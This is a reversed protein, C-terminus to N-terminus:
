RGVFVLHRITMNHRVYSENGFERYLDVQHPCFCGCISEPMNGWSMADPNDKHHCKECVDDEIEVFVRIDGISHGKPLYLNKIEGCNKIIYTMFGISEPLPYNQPFEMIPVVFEPSTDYFIPTDYIPMQPQDFLVPLSEYEDGSGSIVSEVCRIQFQIFYPPRRSGNPLAGTEGISIIENPSFYPPYNRM